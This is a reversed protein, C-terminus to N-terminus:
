QRATASLIAGILGVAQEDTFGAKVLATFLGFIHKAFQEEISTQAKEDGDSLAQALATLFEKQRDKDIM